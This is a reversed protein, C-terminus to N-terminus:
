LKAHPMTYDSGNWYCRVLAFVFEWSLSRVADKFESGIYQPSESHRPDQRPKALASGALSAVVCWLLGRAQSCSTDELELLSCVNRLVSLWSRRSSSSNIAAEALRVMIPRYGDLDESCSEQIMMLKLLHMIASNATGINPESRSSPTELAEFRQQSNQLLRKENFPIAGINTVAAEVLLYIKREIAIFGTASPSRQRAQSEDLFLKITNLIHAIAIMIESSIKVEQRSADGLAKTFSQWAIYLPSNPYFNNQQLDLRFLKSFVALVKDSRSRIWKCDLSSLEDAKVLGSTNARNENWPKPQQNHLLATLIECSRDSDKRSACFSEPIVRDIYHDWYLDLQSYSASPKFSYNLLNCYSSQAVQKTHKSTKDSAKRSLQSVVPQRLMKIMQPSTSANLDVAYVFRNWAALALHKVPPEPSNFCRQLVMLLPKLHPWRELKHKRNRLLLVVAGWIQPAHIGNEKSKAIETLRTALLDAVSHGEPVTRNFLDFAAQSVSPTSGLTIGADYGFTIALSRIDKTSSLMGSVLHDIWQEAYAVMASRAQTLLRQYIRLRLGIIANGRHRDTLEALATMLRNARENTMVKGSFHQKAMVQMYHTILVKPLKTTELSAISREVISARFDDSLTNGLRPTWLIFILLKLSQAILQTDGTGKSDTAAAMDRRIFHVLDPVSKSIAEADSGEDHTSIWGLLASYADLRSSRSTSKLHLIASELMLPVNDPDLNPLEAVPSSRLTDKLISKTSKRDRSPPLQRVVEWPGDDKTGFDMAKHIRPFPEFEVKKHGKRSSGAFYEASSSPSESPTDLLIQHTIKAFYGNPSLTDIPPESREKPPTPPRTSMSALRQTPDVM